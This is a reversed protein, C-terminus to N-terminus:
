PTPTVRQVDFTLVKAGRIIADPLFIFIVIQAVVVLFNVISFFTFQNYLYSQYIYISFSFSWLSNMLSACNAMM